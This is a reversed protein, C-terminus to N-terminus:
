TTYQLLQLYSNGGEKLWLRIVENSPLHRHLADLWLPHEAVCLEYIKREIEDAINHIMSKDDEPINDDGYVKYVDVLKSRTDKIYDIARNYYKKYKEKNNLKGNNAIM